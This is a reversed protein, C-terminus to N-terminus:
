ASGRGVVRQAWRGLRAKTGRGRYEPVGRSLRFFSRWPSQLGTPVSLRDLEAFCERFHAVAREGISREAAVLVLGRAEADRPLGFALTKEPAYNPGADVLEDALDALKLVVLDREVSADGLTAAAHLVGASTAHTYGAVVTEAEDGVHERVIDRKAKTVGRRGDGFDGFLYASHLMGGLVLAPRERWDALAGATGVLHAIFPKQDPRFCGVFLQRALEYASRVQLLTPEDYGAIMLQRYLQM